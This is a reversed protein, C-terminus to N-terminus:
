PGWAPDLEDGALTTLHILDAACDQDNCGAPIVYLDFEGGTDRDSAFVVYGGDPSWAPAVENAESFTAQDLGTGDPRMWYLDHEGATNAAFALWEGDPSWAPTIDILGTGDRLQIGVAGLPYIGIRSPEGPVPSTSLAIETGDPSWTPSLDYRGATLAEVTDECSEPASLCATDLLMISSGEVTERSFAIRMGDASWAPSRDLAAGNTLPTTQKTDLDYLWLADRGDRDSVFVIQTGDPSWAPSRDNAPHDTIQEEYGTLLDFLYLDFGGNRNSAFILRGKRFGPLGAPVDTAAAEKVIPDPSEVTTPADPEDPALGVGSQIQQVLGSIASSSGPAFLALSLLFVIAVIPILAKWGRRRVAVYVASIRGYTATLFQAPPGSPSMTPGDFRGTSTVPVV